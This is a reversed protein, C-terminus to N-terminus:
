MYNEFITKLFKNNQLVFSICTDGLESEKKLNM